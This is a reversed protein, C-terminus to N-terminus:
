KHFHTKKSHQKKLLSMQLAISESSFISLSSKLSIIGKVDAKYFIFDAHEFFPFCTYLIICFNVQIPMRQIDNQMTDM